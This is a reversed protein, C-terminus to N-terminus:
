KLEKEITEIAAKIKPQEYANAVEFAAAIVEPKTIIRGDTYVYDNGSNSFCLYVLKDDGRKIPEMIGDCQAMLEGSFICAALAAIMISRM